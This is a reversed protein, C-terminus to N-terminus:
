NRIKSRIAKFVSLNRLIKKEEENIGLLIIVIICIIIALGSSLFFGLITGGLKHVIFFPLPITLLSVVVMKLVVQSLYDKLNLNILKKMYITRIIACLFNMLVWGALAFRGDYGFKLIFYLLPITLFKIVSMLTQHVKLYGTAHVAQWLPTQCADILYFIMMVRIYSVAIPPYDGLWIKLIFDTNLFIPVSILLLLFFSLKSSSFILKMFYDYNKSAYSKIIQPNFAQTFNGLFSSLCSCVQNTIGLAANAVVGLFINFFIAVSQTTTVDATNVLLSWGSYSVFKKMLSTDWFRIYCCDSFIRNCYIIYFILLISAVGFLLAGYFVLSDIPSYPLLLAVGLKLTVEFISIIAYFNMREHAIISSNFPTQIVSVCFTLLSFHFLLNAAHVRSEEINLKNNILWTGVIELLM